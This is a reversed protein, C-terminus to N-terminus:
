GLALLHRDGFWNRSYARGPIPPREFVGGGCEADAIPSGAANKDSPTGSIESPPPLFRLPPM